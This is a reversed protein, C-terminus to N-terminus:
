HECFVCGTKTMRLDVVVQKWPSTIYGKVPQETILTSLVMGIVFM